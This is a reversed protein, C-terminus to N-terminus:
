LPTVAKETLVLEAIDITRIGELGRRQIEEKFTTNCYPCATVILESQTALAEEVRNIIIPKKKNRSEWFRGGGAGCCFSKEQTRPMEVLEVGPVAVLVERPEICHGSYHSLYCPDHYTITKSQGHPIQLRGKRLLDALFVSHPIVEYAGGFEPYENKFTNFCHPCLTVIKKVGLDNLCAINRRVTKQFLLENGMRRVTEGCCWENVGLLAFDVEADQLIKAFAAAVNKASEDGQCGLYFLYEAEPKEMLTPIKMEKVWSDKTLLREKGWPNGYKEVGEFVERAEPSLEVKESVITRRMDIIKSVHDISVPCANNCGGCTTCSQIFDLHFLDGVVKVPKGTKDTQFEEEEMTSRIFGNIRKPKLREKSQEAPCQGHCYGCKVCSFTDFLQKWTFDEVTKVGCTQEQNLNLPVTLLAGKPARSHWYVNLPAFILHLHKSRPIIIFFSFILLFHMWWFVSVIISSSQSNEMKGLITLYLLESLIIASILGLILYANTSNHLWEPKFFLRRSMFGIVGIIALVIMSNRLFLFGPNTGIFPIPANFLGQSAMDISSLSLVLFGWMIFTHFFASLPYGKLNRQLFVRKFFFSLRELPHDNRNDARGLRTLRFRRYVQYIFYSFTIGFILFFIAAQM